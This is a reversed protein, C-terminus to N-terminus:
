VASFPGPAGSFENEDVGFGALQELSTVRVERFTESSYPRGLCVGGRVCLNGLGGQRCAFGEALLQDYALLVVTRSIGLQEALDRTSPLKQGEHLRERCSEAERLGRYVQRFLPGSRKSLPITLQM